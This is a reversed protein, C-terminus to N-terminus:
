RFRCPGPWCSSSRKSEGTTRAPVGVASRTLALGAGWVPISGIGTVKICIEATGVLLFVGIGHTLLLTGTLVMLAFLPHLRGLGALVTEGHPNCLQYKAIISVFLYRLILCLAFGWMLSYGYNGGAMASEVIDGAGLWTLVVVIGPGMSRVYELFSRPIPAPQYATSDEGRM